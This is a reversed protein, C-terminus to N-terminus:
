VRSMNSQMIKVVNPPAAPSNSVRSFHHEHPHYGKSKLFRHIRISVWAVLLSLTLLVISSLMILVGLGKGLASFGKFSMGNIILAAFWFVVEIINLIMNAKVSSWRQLRPRKESLLQYTIVICTKISVVIIWTDARTLNSKKTAARIIGLLINFLALGIQAYHIRDIHRLQDQLETPFFM